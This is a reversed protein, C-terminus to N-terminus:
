AIHVINYQEKELAETVASADKTDLRFIINAKEADLKRVIVSIINIGMSKIIRAAGSLMGVKDEVELTIRISPYKFGFIDIFAKFLDSETIMGVLEDGDMVPLSAIKREEMVVAAEELIADKSIVTINKTMIDNIKINQFVFMQNIESLSTAPSPTSKLLDQKTVIGIVKNNSLVPLRRISHEKMLRFADGVSDETTITVPNVAMYDKVFM